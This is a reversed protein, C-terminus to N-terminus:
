RGELIDWLELYEALGFWGLAGKIDTVWANGQLAEFVSRKKRIKLPVCRVVNPALEELCRGHMWCDTWFCTNKGNGVTSEIAIAFMATANSYVRIQLGAWPRDAGTKELWLWRMQLAWGMIELNHIGLGWLDISRM